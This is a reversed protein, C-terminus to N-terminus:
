KLLRELERVWAGNRRGYTKSYSRTGPRKSRQAEGPPRPTELEKLDASTARARELAAADSVTVWWGGYADPATEPTVEFTLGDRVAKGGALDLAKVADRDSDKPLVGALADRLAARRQPEGSIGIEVAAPAEPDGYVNVEVPGSRYSLYPVHRLAGQEIVTAAVPVLGAEQAKFREIARAASPLRQVAPGPRQLKTGGIWAALALAIAGALGGAMRRRRRRPRPTGFNIQIDPGAMSTM